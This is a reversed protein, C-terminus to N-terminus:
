YFNKYERVMILKAVGNKDTVVKMLEQGNGTHVNIQVFQGEENSQNKLNKTSDSSRKTGREQENSPYYKLKFKQSEERDSADYFKVIECDLQLQGFFNKLYNSEHIGM